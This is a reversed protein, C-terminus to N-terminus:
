IAVLTSPDIARGSPLRSQNGVSSVSSGASSKPEGLEKETNRLILEFQEFESATLKQSLIEWIEDDKQLILLGLTRRSLVLSLQPFQQLLEDLEALATELVQPYRIETLM